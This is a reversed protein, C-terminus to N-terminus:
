PYVILLDGRQTYRVDSHVWTVNDEICTIGLYLYNSKIYSRVETAMADKFIKDSARGWTHQSTFSYYPSDPLRIGSYNRDGGNWWDNITVSGFKDRLKQDSEVLRKDLMWMLRNEKGKYQIYLEKPIYEDLYLNATLKVREM